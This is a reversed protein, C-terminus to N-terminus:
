DHRDRMAQWSGRKMLGHHENDGNITDAQGGIQPGPLAGPLTAKHECEGLDPKLTTQVQHRQRLVQKAIMTFDSPGWYNAWSIVSFMMFRTRATTKAAKATEAMAILPM